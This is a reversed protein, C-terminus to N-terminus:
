SIAFFLIKVIMGMALGTMLETVVVAPLVAGNQLAIRAPEGLAGYLAASMAFAIMLRIRGPISDEGFVPLLMLVAGVRAFVIFFASVTLELDPPLIMRHHHSRQDQGHLRVAGTGHDAADAPLRPGNRAAHARIHAHDGPDA